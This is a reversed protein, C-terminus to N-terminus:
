ARLEDPQWDRILLKIAKRSDLREALVKATLAPLEEDGAFRLAILQNLTLAPIQPRMESPLVQALRVRMELRIVRNQVALAFRRTYIALLLLAIALLLSVLTDWSPRRGIGHLAWGLNITLLGLVGVQFGPVYRTHNQFNQQRAM